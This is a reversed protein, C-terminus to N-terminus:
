RWRLPRAPRTAISAARHQGGLGFLRLFKTLGDRRENMTSIVRLSAFQVALEPVRARSESDM